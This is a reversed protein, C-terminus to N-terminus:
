EREYEEIDMSELTELYTRLEKSRMDRLKKLAQGEIKKVQLRSVGLDTGTEELTKPNEGKNM